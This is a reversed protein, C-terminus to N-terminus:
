TRNLARRSNDLSTNFSIRKGSANRIHLAFAKTIGLGLKQITFISPTPSTHTYGFFPRQKTSKWVSDATRLIGIPSPSTTARKFMNLANPRNSRFTYHLPSLTLRLFNETMPGWRGHPDIAIPILVMNQSLLEGIVTDGHILHQEHSDDRKTKRKLKNREFFQLHKDAIATLSSVANELQDFSYTAKCTHAITIDMGITTYPCYTHFDPSIQPDPDFSFDFPQAGTDSTRINRREIDLRTNTKIYGATALAPQLSDAWTDRIIDHAAKKSIRRCKFTHDGWRDHTHTCICIPAEQSPPFIQLRLKRRIAILFMWNPMRHLPNSRNMGALPYSMHPSLISPLLHTHEPAETAITSYIQGLIINGSYHKIRSRASHSSIQSQFFHSKETPDCSPPSAINAIHPLLAYYRTLIQSTTNYDLDFLKALSTNTQVQPVDKNITFGRSACRSSSMMNIIFDPIARTSAHLIGLGGKNINLHTILSAYMPLPEDEQMNLLTRLFNNVIQDYGNTLHGNWNYWEENLFENSHNHLVDSDLLHPIKQTICQTFLKLRTHLDPIHTSISHATREMEKLQDDFFENAFTTSGIPSGLLRFGSTLEVPINPGNPSPKTSYKAITHEIDKALNPNAAQIDPLISHGTCSTLIRTKHPNVFCGRTKGMTNIEECFFQVDEHIVMSSIDDMYALLHAQGGLGDDGPDGNQLRERARQQLKADLPGLIRQLVLTAFIPSLPCGQNVGEEM